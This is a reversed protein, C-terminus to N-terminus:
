FLRLFVHDNKDSASKCFTTTTTPKTIEICQVRTDPKLVDGETSAERGQSGTLNSISKLTKNSVNSAKFPRAGLYIESKSVKYTCEQGNLNNFM